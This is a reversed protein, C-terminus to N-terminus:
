GGGRRRRAFSVSGYRSRIAPQTFSPRVATRINSNARSSGSRGYRPCSEAKRPATRRLPVRLGLAAITLTGTRKSPQRGFIQLDVPALDALERERLLLGRRAMEQRTSQFYLRQVQTHKVVSIRWSVSNRTPPQTRASPQTGQTSTKSLMFVTVVPTVSLLLRDPM